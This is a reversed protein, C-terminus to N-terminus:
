GRWPNLDDERSCAQMFAYMDVSTCTFCWSPHKRGKISSIIHHLVAGFKHIQKWLVNRLEHSTGWSKCVSALLMYICTCVCLRLHHAMIYGCHNVTKKMFGKMEDRIELITRRNLLRPRKPCSHRHLEETNNSSNTSQWLELDYLITHTHTHTDTHTHVRINTRTHICVWASIHVCVCVCVCVCVFNPRAEERTLAKDDERSCTFCCSVHKSGKIYSIHHFIVSKEKSAHYSIIHHLVSLCASHMYACTCVCLCLHHAM